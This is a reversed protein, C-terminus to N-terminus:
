RVRSKLCVEHQRRRQGGHLDAFDFHVAPWFRASSKKMQKTIVGSTAPPLRVVPQEDNTFSRLVFRHFSKARTEAAAGITLNGVTNVLNVLDMQSGTRRAYSTRRMIEGVRSSNRFSAPCPLRIGTVVRMRASM